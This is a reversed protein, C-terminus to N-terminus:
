PLGRPLDGVAAAEATKGAANANLRDVQAAVLEDILGEYGASGLHRLLLAELAEHDTAALEHLEEFAYGTQSDHPM